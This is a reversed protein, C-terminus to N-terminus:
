PKPPASATGASSSSSPRLVGELGNVESACNSCTGTCEHNEKCEVKGVATTCSYGGTAPASFKGGAKACAASLDGYDYHGSLKKTAAWGVDTLLLTAVCGFLAGLALCAFKHSSLKNSM